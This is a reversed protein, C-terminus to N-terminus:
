PYVIVWWKMINNANLVRGHLMDIALTPNYSLGTMVVMIMIWIQEKSRRITTSIIRIAFVISFMILCISGVIDVVYLPVMYYTPANCKSLTLPEGHLGKM